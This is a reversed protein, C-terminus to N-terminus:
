GAERAKGYVCTTARVCAITMWTMKSCASRMRERASVERVEPLLPAAALAATFPIGATLLRPDTEDM